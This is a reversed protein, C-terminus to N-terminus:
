SLEILEMHSEVEPAEQLSGVRQGYLRVNKAYSQSL